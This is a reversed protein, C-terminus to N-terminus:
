RSVAPATTASNADKVRTLHITGFEKYRTAGADDVMRGDLLGTENGLQYRITFHRDDNPDVQGAFLKLNRVLLGDNEFVVFPGYRYPHDHLTGSRLMTAIIQPKMAPYPDFQVAVLVRMGSATTMEHQFIVPERLSMSQRWTQNWMQEFRGPPDTVPKGKTSDWVVHDAPMTEAATEYYRRRDEWLRGKAEFRLILTQRHHFVYGAAILLATLIMLLATRHQRWFSVTPRGYNLQTVAAPKSATETM